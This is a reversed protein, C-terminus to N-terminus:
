GHPVVEVTMGGGPMPEGLRARIDVVQSDDVYAIGNLCDLIIKISNDLDIRRKMPAGRKTISPRLVISVAVPDSTPKAGAAKAAWAADRKWAIVAPPM